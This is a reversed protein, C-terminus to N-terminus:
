KGAVSKVFQDVQGGLADLRQEIDLLLGQLGHDAPLTTTAGERFREGPPPSVPLTDRSRSLSSTGARAGLSRHLGTVARGHQGRQERHDGGTNTRPPVRGERRETSLAPRTGSLLRGVFRTDERRERDADNVDWFVNYPLKRTVTGGDPMADGAVLINEDGIDAVVSIHGLTHGPTDIISIGDAVVDGDSIPEVRMKDMMDAIYKAANHDAPNPNHAYDIEKPHVLIRANSFMDTNQCHDWHMHTLIVLDIEEPSLGRSDLASWLLGRRSAPGTDVVINQGGVELLSISSWGFGGEPSIFSFGYTLVDLNAM